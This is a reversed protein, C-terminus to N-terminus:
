DGNAVHDYGRKLATMNMEILNKKKITARLTREVMDLDFAGTAAILAGLLVVNAAQARQVLQEWSVPEGDNGDVMVLSRGAAPLEPIQAPFSETMPASCALSLAPALLTALLLPRKKSSDLRDTCTM